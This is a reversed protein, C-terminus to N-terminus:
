PKRHTARIDRIVEAIEHQQLGAVVAECQQTLRTNIEADTLRLNIDTVVFAVLKILNSERIHRHRPALEDAIAMPKM